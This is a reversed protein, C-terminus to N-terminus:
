MGLARVARMKARMGFLLEFFSVIKCFFAEKM